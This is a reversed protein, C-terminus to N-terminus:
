KKIGLKRVIRRITDYSCNLQLQQKVQAYTAKVNEHVFRIISRKEVKTLIPPRGSRPLSHGKPRTNLLKVTDCVTSHLTDEIESIRQAFCGAKHLGEIVSRKHPSLELRSTKNKKQVRANASAPGLPTCPPM